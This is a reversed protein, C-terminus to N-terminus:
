EPTNSGEGPYKKPEEETSFTATISVFGNSEEIDLTHLENIHNKIVTVARNLLDGPVISHDVEYTAKM